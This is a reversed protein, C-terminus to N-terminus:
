SLPNKIVKIKRMNKQPTVIEQGNELTVRWVPKRNGDQSKETCVGVGIIKDGAIVAVREGKRYIM